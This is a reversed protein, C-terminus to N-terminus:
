GADVALAETRSIVGTSVVSGGPGAAATLRRPLSLWPLALGLINILVLPALSAWGKLGLLMGSNRAIDGAILKPLSFDFLPNAAYDPFAQGGLTEAWIAFVSWSIAAM